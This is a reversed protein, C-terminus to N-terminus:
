MLNTLGKKANKKEPNIRHSLRIRILLFNLKELLFFQFNGIILEMKKLFLIM